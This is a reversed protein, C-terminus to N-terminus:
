IKIEIYKYFENDKQGNTTFGKEILIKKGESKENYGSSRIRALIRIKWGDVGNFKPTETIFLEVYGGMFPMKQSELM